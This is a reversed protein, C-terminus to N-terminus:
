LLIKLKRSESWHEQHIGPTRPIQQNNIDFHIHQASASKRSSFRGKGLPVDSPQLTRARSMFIAKPSSPLPVSLLLASSTGPCHNPPCPCLWPHERPPSFRPALSPPQHESRTSTVACGPNVQTDCRTGQECSLRRDEQGRRARWSWCVAKGPEPGGPHQGHFFDWM